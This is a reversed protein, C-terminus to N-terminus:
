FPLDDSEDFTSSSVAAPASAAPQANSKATSNSSPNSTSEQGVKEIKWAEITNFYKIEGDKPNVWERGRLNISVKLEDGHNFANIMDCKDQTLQINIHQPYQTSNDTIVFDRKKFKESVQQADFKMKLTGTIEM